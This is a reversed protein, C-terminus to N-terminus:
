NTARRKLIVSEPYVAEPKCDCVSHMLQGLQKGHDLFQHACIWCMLLVGDDHPVQCDPRYVKCGCCV